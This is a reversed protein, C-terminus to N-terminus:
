DLVLGNIVTQTDVIICSYDKLIYDILRNITGKSINEAVLPNSIGKLADVNRYVNKVFKDYNEPFRLALELKISTNTFFNEIGSDLILSITFLFFKKLKKLTQSIEFIILIGISAK